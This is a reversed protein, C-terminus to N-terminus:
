DDDWEKSELYEKNNRCLGHVDWEGHLHASTHLAEIFIFIGFMFVPLMWLPHTILDETKRM